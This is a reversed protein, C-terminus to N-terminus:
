FFNIKILVFVNRYIKLLTGLLVFLYPMKYKYKHIVKDSKTSIKM